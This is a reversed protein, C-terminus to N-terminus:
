RIVGKMRLERDRAQLELPSERRGSVPSGGGASRAGPQGAGRFADTLSRSRMAASASTYQPFTVPGFEAVRLGTLSREPLARPNYDSVKPKDVWEESVTEFRFSAGYEGARIGEILLEPIGNFMSAEYYAGKPQEELTTISGLVKSGLMADRGHQFLLRMNDRDNEFTDTFAGPMIRELFNGEWMSNIETWQNFVAFHGYLTPQSATGDTNTGAARLATEMSRYGERRREEPSLDQSRFRVIAPMGVRGSEEGAAMPSASSAAPAAGSETPEDADPAGLVELLSDVTALAGVVLDIGQATEGAQFESLAEDLVADLASALHAADEDWDQEAREEEIVSLANLRMVLSARRRGVRALEKGSERIPANSVYRAARRLKKAQHRHDETNDARVGAPVYEASAKM